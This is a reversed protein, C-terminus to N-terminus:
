YRTPPQLSGAPRSRWKVFDFSWRYSQSFAKGAGIWARRVGGAFIADGRELHRPAGTLQWLWAYAPAISLNLEPTGYSPNM